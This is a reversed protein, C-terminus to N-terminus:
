HKNEHLFKKKPLQLKDNLMKITTLKINSFEINCKIDVENNNWIQKSINILKLIKKQM